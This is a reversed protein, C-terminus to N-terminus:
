DMDFHAIVKKLDNFTPEDLTFHHIPREWGKDKNWVILEYLDEHKEVQVRGHFFKYCWSQELADRKASPKQTKKNEKPIAVLKKPQMELDIGLHDCIAALQRRAIDEVAETANEAKVIREFMANIGDRNIEGRQTAAFLIKEVDHMNEFM